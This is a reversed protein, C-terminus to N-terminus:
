QGYFSVRKKALNFADVDNKSILNYLSGLSTIFHNNSTHRNNDRIHPLEKALCGLRAALIEPATSSTHKEVSDLGLSLLYESTSLDCFIPERLFTDSTELGKTDSVQGVFESEQSRKAFLGLGLVREIREVVNLLLICCLSGSHLESLLLEQFNLGHLAVSM